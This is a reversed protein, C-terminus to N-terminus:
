KGEKKLQEEKLKNVAETLEPEDLLKELEDVSQFATPANDLYALLKEAYERIENNM